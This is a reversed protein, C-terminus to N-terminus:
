QPIIMIERVEVTAEATVLAPCDKSIATAEKLDAAKILLYGGVLDKGEIYPGDTTKKSTGKIVTGQPQLPQGGIIKGEQALKGMWSNWREMEAQLEAPSLNTHQQTNALTDRFILLFDKM